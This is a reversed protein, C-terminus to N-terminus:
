VPSVVTLLPVSVKSTAIDVAFMMTLPPVKRSRVDPDAFLALIVTALLATNSTSACVVAKVIPEPFTRVIGVVPASVVAM